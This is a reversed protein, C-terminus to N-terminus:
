LISFVGAFYTGSEYMLMSDPIQSAGVSTFLYAPKTRKDMKLKNVSGDLWLGFLTHTITDM